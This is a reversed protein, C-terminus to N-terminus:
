SAPQATQSAPTDPASTTSSGGTQPFYVAPGQSSSSPYDMGCALAIGGSVLVFLAVLLVAIIRKM